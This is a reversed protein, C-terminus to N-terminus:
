RKFIKFKKGNIKLSKLLKVKKFYLEHRNYNDQNSYDLRAAQAIFFLYM